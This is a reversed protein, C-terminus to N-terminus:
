FPMKKDDVPSSLSIKIHSGNPKYKVNKEVRIECDMTLGYEIAIRQVEKLLDTFDDGSEAKRETTKM